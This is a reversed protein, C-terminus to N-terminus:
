RPCNSSPRPHKQGREAPVQARASRPPGDAASSTMRCMRGSSDYDPILNALPQFGYLTMAEPNPQGYEDLEPVPGRDIWKASFMATGAIGEITHQSITGPVAAFM